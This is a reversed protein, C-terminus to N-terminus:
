VSYWDTRPPRRGSATNVHSLGKFKKKLGDSEPFFNKKQTKRIDNVIAAVEAASFTEQKSVDPHIKKLWKKCVIDVDEGDDGDKLMQAVDAWGQATADSEDSINEFAVVDTCSDDITTLSADTEEVGARSGCRLNLGNPHITNLKAIM